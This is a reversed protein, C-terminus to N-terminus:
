KIHMNEIEYRKDIEKPDNVDCFCILEELLAPGSAAFLEQNDLETHQHYFKLASKLEQRDAQHLTYALVKPMWHVVLEVMKTNLCKALEYLTALAHDNQNVVLRPLVVPIMRKVLEETEVGLVATSFEEVMERQNVLRMCLYDYLDNRAHLVKSLIAELGGAHHLYCSRTISKSAILRVTLHSNGLQGILLFLSFLFLQSHIDVSQMITAATELLTEFILPEEAAALAHKIKDMFRQERSKNSQDKDMFLIELIPEQLFFSIQSGFAQRVNKNKNLLLFDICQVWQSRTKHLIDETGHVLIRQITRVCTVQVEESSQDYLLEFFLSQLLTYDCAFHSGGEQARPLLVAAYSENDVAISRDCKSCWFGQLLHDMRSDEKDNEKTLYLKCETGLSAAVGNYYGHLCALHGLSLVIIKKVQENKEKRLIRFCLFLFYIMESLLCIKNLLYM